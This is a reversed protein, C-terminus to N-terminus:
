KLVMMKKTSLFGGWEGEVRSRARIRYFYVGSALSAADFTVSKFGAEQVEDLLTVVEEGLVSYLKLVVHSSVPLDYRITTSPNFPNPYNQLLAYVVPMEAAASPEAGVPSVTQNEYAGMDPRTGDPAPRSGGEVDSAPAHVWVGAVQFSDIGRGICPSADLLHYDGNGIEAFLPDADINGTGWHVVSLSDTVDISDLGDQIDSYNVHLTAGASDVTVLAIQGLTNGWFICNTVSVLAPGRVSLAASPGGDNLAFTCNVFDVAAGAGVAMGATNTGTGGGAVNSASLCNSVTGTCNSTFTVGASWRAATNGTFLSNSIVFDSVHGSIRFTTARDASNDAFVCGDVLVDLLSTEQDTQQIHVGAMAGASNNKDFRSGILKVAYPRGFITSDAVFWIAGGSSFAENHLFLTSHLSLDSNHVNLGGATGATDGSFTSNDITLKSWVANIGGGVNASNDDYLSSGIELTSHDFHNGGGAEDARNETFHVSDMQIDCFDAAIAGGLWTVNNGMFTSNRIMITSNGSGLGGGWNASNEMLTVDALSVSDSEICLIGGGGHVVAENERISCTILQLPTKYVQIGGGDPATNREVTVNRLTLSGLSDTGSGIGGGWGGTAQNDTISCSDLELRARFAHIGGGERATNRAVTVNRLTMVGLSDCWIGIGGGSGGIAQNDTISDMRFTPHSNGGFAVAGGAKATNHSFTNGVLTLDSEHAQIAGGDGVASNYSFTNELLVIDSWATHIAGGSPVTSDPGGASNNMLLCHSVVVKDYQTVCLAGGANIFWVTGVAKGYQLRCYAIRSTDNQEPTDIFRIGYWGGLTTDPDHFGTTDNVTFLITDEESGVALLRGQVNLPYHGQFEVVVGPEITLTSDNPITIEGDILYPSNALTWTGYVDGPSVHTEADSILASMALLLFVCGPIRM